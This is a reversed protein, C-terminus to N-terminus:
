QCREEEEGICIEKMIKVKELLYLKILRKRKVNLIEDPYKYLIEEVLTENITTVMKSCMMHISNHYYTNIFELVMKHTPQKKEDSYIRIISKSKTDILSKIKLIDKGFYENIAEDRIYCCLSSGNDYLPCLEVGSVKRLIAWNSQHRDANGILFDFLLVNFIKDQLGFEILSNRIMEISYYMKNDDDYLTSPDYHPYLKNILSVGEILQENIENILYSMCGIRGQYTGIEIRACPIGIAKAIDSALKESVNEKTEETKNFKFLGIENSLDNRLWLKESRGSGEAAGEYISWNDYNIIM